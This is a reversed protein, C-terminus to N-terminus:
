EILDKIPVLFGKSTNNDGGNVIRYKGKVKVMKRLDDTLLTITFKLEDKYYFNTSWWKSETKAIGSVKGRSYFEIFVNRTEKWINIESKVEITDGEVMEAIRDEGIKGVKLDYRFDSNYDM